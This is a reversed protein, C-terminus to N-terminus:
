SADEAKWSFYNPKYLSESGTYENNGMYAGHSIWTEMRGTESKLVGLPSGGVHRAKVSDGVSFDSDSMSLHAYEVPYVPRFLYGGCLIYVSFKDQRIISM